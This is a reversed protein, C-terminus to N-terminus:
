LDICGSLPPDIFPNKSLLDSSKNQDRGAYYVVGEESSPGGGHFCAM